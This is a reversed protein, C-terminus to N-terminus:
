QLVEIQKGCTECIKTNGIMIMVDNCESCKEKIETIM